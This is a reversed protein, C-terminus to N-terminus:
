FGGPFYHVAPGDTSISPVDDGNCNYGKASFDVYDGVLAGDALLNPFWVLNAPHSFPNKMLDLQEPISLAENYVQCYALKGNFPFTDGGDNLKYNGVMTSNFSAQAAIPDSSVTTTIISVGDLFFERDTSSNFNVCTFFWTGDVITGSCPKVTVNGAITFICFESSLTAVCFADNAGTSAIDGLCVFGPEGTAGDDDNMWACMSFPYSVDKHPGDSASEYELADTSGDFDSSARSNAM